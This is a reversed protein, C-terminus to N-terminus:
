AVQPLSPGIGGPSLVSAMPAPDIGLSRMDAAGHKAVMPVELLEAEEWTAFAKEGFVRRMALLLRRVVPLPVHVHPRV